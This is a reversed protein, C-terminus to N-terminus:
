LSPKYIAVMTQMRTGQDATFHDMCIDDTYDMFNYIPDLGEQPCTDRGHPCGFAASEEYPTDDVEDGPASCGNEFTHYLGLYHGVEHTITDGLNYPAASGGPLSSYLAVVGHYYSSEDFSWPLYSWGLLGGTPACTYINLNNSPDIALAQKMKRDQRYCGTYWRRNDTRDISALTFSFGTGQYAANLVDIQDYIWQDPIDGSSGYHVVHFAIPVVTTTKFLFNDQMWLGVQQQVLAKEAPTPEPTACREGRVIDGDPGMFHVNQAWASTALLCVVAVLILKKM